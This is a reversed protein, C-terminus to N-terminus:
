LQLHPINEIIIKAADCIDKVNYYKSPKGHKLRHMIKHWLVLLSNFSNSKTTSPIEINNATSAAIIIEMFQPYKKVCEKYLVKLNFSNILEICKFDNLAKIYTEAWITEVSYFAPIKNDWQYNIHGRFHPANELKGTHKGTASDTSGSTPCIGSITIPYDVRLVRKCVLALATAM